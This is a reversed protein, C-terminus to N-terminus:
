RQEEIRKRIVPILSGDVETGLWRRGTLRAAVGITGTGSFPDAILDKPKTLQQTWALYPALPQQWDHVMKNDSFQSSIIFSDTCCTKRMDKGHSFVLVPRWKMLFRNIMKSGQRFVISMMWLYRFRKFIQLVAPIHTQSAQVVILGGQRLKKEAMDALWQYSDLSDWPPDSFIHDVEPWQYARADTHIVKWNDWDDALSRRARALEEKRAALTAETGALRVERLFQRISMNEPTEAAHQRTAVQMYVRATRDPIGNMKLWAGWRRYPCLKKARILLEGVQVIIDMTPRMQLQAMLDGIKRSIGSIEDM